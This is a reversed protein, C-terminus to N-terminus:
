DEEYYTENSVKKGHAEADKVKELCVSRDYFITKNIDTYNFLYRHKERKESCAFYTDYLTSVHMELVNYVGVPPLIQAYYMHDKKKPLRNEEKNEENM